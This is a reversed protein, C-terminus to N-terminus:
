KKCIKKHEKWYKKQCRRNCYRAKKCGTCRKFKSISKNGCGNCIHKEPNIVATITEILIKKEMMVKTIKGNGYIHITVDNCIIKNLAELEFFALDFAYIYANSKANTLVLFINENNSNSFCENIYSSLSIQNNKTKFHERLPEIEYVGLTNNILICAYKRRNEKSITKQLINPERKSIGIIIFFTDLVGNLFSPNNDM